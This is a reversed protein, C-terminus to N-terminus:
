LPGPSWRHPGPGATTLAPCFWGWMCLQTSHALDPSKLGRLSAQETSTLASVPNPPQLHALPPGHPLSITWLADYGGTPRVKANMYMLPGTAQLKDGGPLGSGWMFVNSLGKGTHGGVVGGM